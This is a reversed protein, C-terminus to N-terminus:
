VTQKGSRHVIFTNLDRVPFTQKAKCANFNNEAVAQGVSDTEATSLADM